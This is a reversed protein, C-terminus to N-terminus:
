APVTGFRLPSTPSDLNRGGRYRAGIHRDPLRPGDGFLRERLTRPGAGPEELRGRRRLEPVVLEVFDRATDFSHYQRLNIGDVGDEDLWREIEDAVTTPSGAVFFRGERGTKLGDLAAGVTISPDLMPVREAPV